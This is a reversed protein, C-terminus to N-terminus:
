TGSGVHMVRWVGKGAGARCSRVEKLARESLVHGKARVVVFRAKGNLALGTIPCAFAAGGDGGKGSGSPELKLDILHKLSSIHGLAKPMTKGVLAQIVADKNFLAGLEDCM